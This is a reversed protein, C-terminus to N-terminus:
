KILNWIILPVFGVLCSVINALYSFLLIRKFRMETIQKYAFAEGFPILVGEGIVYWVVVPWNKHLGLVLYTIGFLIMNFSMNTMVNLVVFFSKKKTIGYYVFPYEFILTPLLTALIIIIAGVVYVYFLM